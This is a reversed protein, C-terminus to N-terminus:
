EELEGDSYQQTISKGCCDNGLSHEFLKHYQGDMLMDTAEGCLSYYLCQDDPTNRSVYYFAAIDDILAQLAAQVTRGNRCSEQISALESQVHEMLDNHCCTDPM